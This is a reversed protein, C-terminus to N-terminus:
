ELLDKMRRTAPKGRGFELSVTIRNSKSSTPPIEDIHSSTPGIDDVGYKGELTSFLTRISENASRKPDM